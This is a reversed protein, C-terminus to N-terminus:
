GEYEEFERSELEEKKAENYRSNAIELTTALLTALAVITQNVENGLPLNWIRCLALYFTAVAPLWRQLKNLFDYLKDSM